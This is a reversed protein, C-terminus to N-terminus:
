GRSRRRRSVVGSLREARTMSRIVGMPLPWRPSMTAGGRVPLVISSWFMALLMVALWGSTKRMTRSMSSRGSSTVSMCRETLPSTMEEVKSSGACRWTCTASITM